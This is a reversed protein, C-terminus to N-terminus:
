RNVEELNSVTSSGKGWMQKLPIEQDSAGDQLGPHMERLATAPLDLERGRNRRLARYDPRELPARFRSDTGVAM